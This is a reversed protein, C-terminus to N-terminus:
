LNPVANVVKVESKTLNVFGILCRPPWEKLIVLASPFPASTLEKGDPSTFKLRGRIFWLDWLFTSTALEYFWKTDLRAPVLFVTTGTLGKAYEENVKRVFAKIKSYPPNCYRVPPTDTWPARLADAGQDFAFCKPAVANTSTAALDFNIKGYWKEVFALVEKPTRWEDSKRSFHVSVTM